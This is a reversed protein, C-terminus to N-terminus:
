LCTMMRVSVKGSIIQASPPFKMDLVDVIKNLLDNHVKCYQEESMLGSGAIVMQAEFMPNLLTPIALVDILHREDM